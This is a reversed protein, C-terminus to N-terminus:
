LISRGSLSPRMACSPQRDRRRKGSRARAVAFVLAALVAGCGGARPAGLPLSCGCGGADPAVGAGPGGDASLGGRVGGDDAWGSTGRGSMGPSGAVSRSGGAGGTGAAGGAGGSGTAGPNCDSLSLTMSQGAALALYSTQVGGYIEASPTCLGTVPVRAASTAHVTLNGGPEITASVGGADLKMRAAVKDALEDMEPSRVPFTARAAYKALMADLLDSLMSHGGGIDRLNAQHFMWTDNDGRLLYRVLGDSVTDIIQDYSANTNHLAAYEAMWEAPLSVNYYLDSPHRPMVLLSAMQADRYGANPSPNNQGAVSTDSVLQRIGLDYAARMVEPNDLGTVGPTVLNETNYRSLGSGLGFQDNQSFEQYADAYAMANLERHDWTHNIWAFTPGLERAKDTLGDQGAPRAGYGNFAFSARFDATLPSARLGNQWNAFTQLEAATIRYTGDTAPYMASALFIDDIQPSMYAHREGIFLGRTVWDVVGYALELTHLATPSQAFTLVLAERGDAYSRTAAYVNGAADALLPLTFADTPQSSYAWGDGVMVPAACNAGVFVNSGATTCHVTLPSAKADFGGTMQLGYGATPVAYLVARRVGFRAEYASLAMWEADTFASTSSVALDGSDLIIGYYYGHDGAALYDATLASGTSANLVDFPTGLYHLTDTIASLAASSGNATVVLLRADLSVNDAPAMATDPSPNTDPAVSLPRMALEVEAAPVSVRNRAVPVGRDDACAAGAVAVLAAGLGIFRGSRHSQAELM